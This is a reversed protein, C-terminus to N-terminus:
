GERVQDPGGSLPAAESVRSEGVAAAQKRREHEEVAAGVGVEWRRKTLEGAEGQLQEWTPMTRGDFTKWPGHAGPEEGYSEFAVQGLTKGTNSHQM